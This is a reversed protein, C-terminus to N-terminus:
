CRSVATVKLGVRIGIERTLVDLAEASDSASGSGLVQWPEDDPGPDRKLTWRFRHLGTRAAARIHGVVAPDSTRVVLDEPSSM